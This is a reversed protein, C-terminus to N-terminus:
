GMAALTADIWEQTGKTYPHDEGLKAKCIELAKELYKLAERYKGQQYYMSGINNYSTATSPHDKGLVKERIAL